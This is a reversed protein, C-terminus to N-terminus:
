IHSGKSPTQTYEEEKCIELSFKDVLLKVASNRRIMDALIEHATPKMLFFDAIDLGQQRHEDNAQKEIVNSMILRKCIPKLVQSKKQWKNWGGLDPFLVVTRGRLVQMTKENFCGDMGGTALWIFDPMYNSMILATKESEVLAVTANPKERLLHEGFLCQVLHFDPLKLASHAWTVQSTPEKVRHGTEPNYGMLKGARVNGNIDIQWFVACGGWKKGTGVIYLQFIRKTENKGLVACLYTYLPNIDFRAISKQVFKYPILSPEVPQSQEETKASKEVKNYIIPTDDKWDKPKEDPNDHFYDKPTYHYGCSNEHDCRGVYDPFVIICEEDVYHTFCRPKKCEPCTKKIGPKYKQLHFRYDSMAGEKRHM